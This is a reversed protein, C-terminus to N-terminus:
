DVESQWTGDLVDAANRRDTSSASEGDFHAVLWDSRYADQGISRAARAADDKTAFKMLVMRDTGWASECGYQDACVTDTVDVAGELLPISSQGDVGIFYHPQLDIRTDRTLFLGLAVTVVLALFVLIGLSILISRKRLASTNSSVTRLDTM